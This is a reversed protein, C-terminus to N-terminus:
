PQVWGEGQLPFTVIELVGAQRGYARQAQGACDACLIFELREHRPYKVIVLSAAANPCSACAEAEGLVRVLEAVPVRWEGRGDQHAALSGRRIRGRVNEVTVGDGPTRAAEAVGVTQTAEDCMLRRLTWTGAPNAGM